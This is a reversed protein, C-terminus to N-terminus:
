LHNIKEKLCKKKEKTINELYQEKDNIRTLKEELETKVEVIKQKEEPNLEVYKIISIQAIIKM